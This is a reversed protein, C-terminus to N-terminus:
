PFAAEITVTRWSGTRILRASLFLLAPLWVLVSAKPYLLWVVQPGAFTFIVMALYASWRSMRLELALLLTFTGACLLRLFAVVVFSKNLPWLLALLNFPDFLASQANALLPHGSNVYPNWLPLRNQALEERIFKKWPYFEFVQDSLVQNSAETFGLPALPQWLPDLHFLLDAALLPQDGFLPKGLFLTILIVLLLFGQCFPKRLWRGLGMASGLM